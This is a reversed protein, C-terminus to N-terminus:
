TVRWLCKGLARKDILGFDFLCFFPCRGYSVPWLSCKLNRPARQEAWEVSSFSLFFYSVFFSRYLTIVDMGAAVTHWDDDDRDDDISRYRRRARAFSRLSSSAAVWVFALGRFNCCCCCMLLPSPNQLIENPFSSLGPRQRKNVPAGIRRMLIVRIVQNFQAYVDLRLPWWPVM